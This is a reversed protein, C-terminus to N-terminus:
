QKQQTALLGKRSLELLSRLDPTLSKKALVTKVNGLRTAVVKEADSTTIPYREAIARKDEASLDLNEPSYCGSITSTALDRYMWEDFHYKMISLKDFPSSKYSDSYPLQKLNFDIQDNTWLYPPGGLVRYIGPRRVHDDPIFANTLPDHTPYYGPDDTWLYEKECTSLPGQHEHEFGLVHGFEHMVITRWDAPLKKDFHELNMSARSPMRLSRDISEKGVASWYGGEPSSDFSIRISARYDNDSSAWERYNGNPSSEGFDLRISSISEWARAAGAIRGRTEATGGKFAVTIKQGPVWLRPELIVSQIEPTTMGQTSFEIASQRNKMSEILDAPLGEQIHIIKPVPVERKPQTTCGATIMNIALVLIVIANSRGNIVSSTLGALFHCDPRASMHWVERWPNAESEFLTEFAMFVVHILVNNAKMQYQNHPCYKLQTVTDLAEPM